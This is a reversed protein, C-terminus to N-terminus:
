QRQQALFREREEKNARQEEARAAQQHYIANREQEAALEAARRARV